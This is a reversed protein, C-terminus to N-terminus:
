NDKSMDYVFEWLKYSEQDNVSKISAGEAKSAVGAIGGSQIVGLGSSSSPAGLGGAMNQGPAPRNNFPGNQNNSPGSQNNFPGTQNNFPGTQNMGPGNQVNSNPDSNTPVPPNGSPDDSPSSGPAGPAIGPNAQNVGTAGNAAIAAARQRMMAGSPAQPSGPNAGPNTNGNANANLSSLYGGFGANSNTGNGSNSGGFGGPNQAGVSGPANNGTGNNVNNNSNSSPGSNFGGFASTASANNDNSGGFGSNANGPSSFGTNGPSSGTPSGLNNPGNAGNTGNAAVPNVKSDIIIGGPGAHLLRWDDKGTFPDKYRKRLFRMRNTNELAEFSPPYQQIKRVYLKVGRAYENGRDILLQEKQRQSEFTVVPLEAYLGIAIIAAFVLVILLASGRERGGVRRMPERKLEARMM